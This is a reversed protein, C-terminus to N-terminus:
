DSESGQNIGEFDSIADRWDRPLRKSAKEERDYCLLVVEGTAAQVGDNRTLEYVFTLSSSGVEKVRQGVTVSHDLTLEAHFEMDSRVVAVPAKDHRMGIVEAWYKARAQECYSAYVAQNVHGNPDLDRYQPELEISFSFETM